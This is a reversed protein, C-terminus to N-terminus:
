MITPTVCKDVENYFIPVVCVVDFIKTFSLLVSKYFFHEKFTHFTLKEIHNGRMKLKYLEIAIGTASHKTVSHKIMILGKHERRNHQTSIHPGGIPWDTM